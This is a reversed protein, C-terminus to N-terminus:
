QCSSTGQSCSPLLGQRLESPAPHSRSGRAKSAFLQPKRLSGQNLSLTKELCHFFYVRHLHVSSGGAESTEESSQGATRTTSPFLAGAPDLLHAPVRTPARPSCFAATLASGARAPPASKPGSPQRTCHQTGQTVGARHVFSLLANLVPQGQGGTRQSSEEKIM